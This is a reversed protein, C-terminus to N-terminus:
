RIQLDCACDAGANLSDEFPLLALPEGSGSEIQGASEQLRIPLGGFPRHRALHQSERALLHSSM